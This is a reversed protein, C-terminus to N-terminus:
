GWPARKAVHPQGGYAITTSVSGGKALPQPLRIRLRGDPNSWATQALPKGDIAVSRIPLNKDLDLLLVDIPEVASLRLTAEGDLHRKAPDITFHLEAHDFHLRAQEAPMTGGSDLTQATLKPQEVAVPESAHAGASLGLAVGLALLSLRPHM